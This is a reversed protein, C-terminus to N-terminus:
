MESVSVKKGGGSYVIQGEEGIIITGGKDGGHVPFAMMSLAFLLFSLFVKFNM